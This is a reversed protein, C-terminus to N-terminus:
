NIKSSARWLIIKFRFFYIVLKDIHQNDTGIAIQKDPCATDLPSRSEQQFLAAINYYLSLWLRRSNVM